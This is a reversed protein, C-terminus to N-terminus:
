NSLKRRKNNTMFPDEGDTHRIPSSTFLSESNHGTLCEDEPEEPIFLLDHDRLPSVPSSIVEFEVEGQINPLPRSLKEIPAHHDQRETVYGDHTQRQKFDEISDGQISLRRLKPPNNYDYTSSSAVSIKTPLKAPTNSLLCQVFPSTPDVLPNRLDGMRVPTTTIGVPPKRASDKPSFVDTRELERCESDRMLRTALPTGGESEELLPNPKLFSTFAKHPAGSLPIQSLNTLQKHKVPYGTTSARRSLTTSAITMDQDLVKGSFSRDPPPLTWCQRQLELPIAKQDSKKSHPTFPCTMTSMSM